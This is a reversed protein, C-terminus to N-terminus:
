GVRVAGSCSGPMSLLPVHPPHLRLPLLQGWAASVGDHSARGIQAATATDADDYRQGDPYIYLHHHATKSHGLYQVVDSLPCQMLVGHM